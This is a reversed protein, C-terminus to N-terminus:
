YILSCFSSFERSRVPWSAVFIVDARDTIGIEIVASVHITFSEFCWRFKGSFIPSIDSLVFEKM